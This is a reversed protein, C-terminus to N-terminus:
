EDRQEDPERGPTRAKDSLKGPNWKAARGASASVSVLGLLLGWALHRWRGSFRTMMPMGVRPTRYMAVGIGRTWRSPVMAM